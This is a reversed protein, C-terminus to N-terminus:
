SARLATAAVASVTGVFIAGCVGGCDEDGINAVGGDVLGGDEGVVVGGTTVVGGDVLDEDECVVVGSDVIGEDEGFVVGTHVVGGDEEGIAAEDRGEGRELLVAV